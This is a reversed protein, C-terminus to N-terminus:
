EELVMPGAVLTGIPSTLFTSVADEMTYVIPEGALNFSTNVVAPVGTM